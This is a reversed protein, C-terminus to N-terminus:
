WELPIKEIESRIKLIRLYNGMYMKQEKLLELSCNPEFDLTVAEYKVTMRDLKDYKDKLEKYEKIFREKWDEMNTQGKEKQCKTINQKERHAKWKECFDRKEKRCQETMSGWCPDSTCYDHICYDCTHFIFDKIKKEDADLSPPTLYKRM